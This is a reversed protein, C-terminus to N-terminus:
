LVAGLDMLQEGVCVPREAPEPVALCLRCEGRLRDFARLLFPEPPHAPPTSDAILQGGKPEVSFQKHRKARGGIVAGEVWHAAGRHLGVFVLELIALGALAGNAKAHVPFLRVEM